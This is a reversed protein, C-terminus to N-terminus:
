GKSLTFLTVEPLCGYRIPIRTSGIGRSVYLLAGNINHRGSAMERSVKTNSYLAKGNPLCIQGGHTHGTLILRIRPDLSRLVVDPSHALLIVPSDPPVMTMASPLSDRGRHPDGVGVVWLCADLRKLCLAANDLFPLIEAWRARDAAHIDPRYDANGYVAVAPWREHIERLFGEVEPVSLATYGYDGGLCILDPETAEAIALL